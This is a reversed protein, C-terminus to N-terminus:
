LLHSSVIKAKEVLTSTIFTEACTLGFVPVDFLQPEIFSTGDLEIQLEVPYIGFALTDPADADVTVTIVGAV